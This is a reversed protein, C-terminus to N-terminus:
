EIKHEEFFKLYPEIKDKASPIFHGGDHEYIAKNTFSPLYQRQSDPPAIQDTLGIVFLVPIDCQCPLCGGLPSGEKPYPASACFIIKIWKYPSDEHTAAHAALHLAFMSGMSFGFIGVADPNEEKAKQITKYSEELSDNEVWSRLDPTEPVVYPPDIFVVEVGVKKLHKMLANTQGKLKKANQLYGCLGLLKM